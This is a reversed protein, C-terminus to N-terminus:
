RDTRASRFRAPNKDVEAVVHAQAATLTPYYAERMQAERSTRCGRYDVWQAHYEKGPVKTVSGNYDDCRLWQELMGGTALPQDPQKFWAIRKEM